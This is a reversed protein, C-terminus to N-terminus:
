DLCLAHVVCVWLMTPASLPKSQSVDAQPAPLPQLHIDWSRFLKVPLPFSDQPRRGLVRLSSGVISPEGGFLSSDLWQPPGESTQRSEIKPKRQFVVGAAKHLKTIGFARDRLDWDWLRQGGIKIKVDYRRTRKVVQSHSHIARVCLALLPPPLDTGM